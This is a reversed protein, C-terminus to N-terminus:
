RKPKALSVRVPKGRLNVGALGRVVRQAQEDPVEV